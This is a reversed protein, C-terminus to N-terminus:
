RAIRPVRGGFTLALVKAVVARSEARLTTVKSDQPLQALDEDAQIIRTVLLNLQDRSEQVLRIDTSPLNGKKDVWTLVTNVADLLDFAQQPDM